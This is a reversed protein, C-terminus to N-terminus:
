EEFWDSGIQVYSKNGITKRATIKPQAATPAAAPRGATSAGQNVPPFSPRQDTTYPQRMAQAKAAMRNNLDDLVRYAGEIDGNDVSAVAKNYQQREFDSVAGQGKNAASTIAANIEQLRSRVLNRQRLREKAGSFGIPASSVIAENIGSSSVPGFVAPDVSPRFTQQNTKPDVVRTGLLDRAGAIIRTMEEAEQAKSLDGARAKEELTVREKMRAGEAPSLSGPASRVEGTKKNFLLGSNGDLSWNQDASGALAYDKAASAKKAAIEAMTMDRQYPNIGAENMLFATAAKHDNPDVGYKTLHQSLQPVTDHVKAWMAAQKAPDPEAAVSQSLAGFTKALRQENQYDADQKTQQLKLSSIGSAMDGQDFATSAAGQYDGTALKSGILQNKARTGIATIGEEVPAFNLLANGPYQYAPLPAYSPM